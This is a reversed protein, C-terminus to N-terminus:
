QSPGQGCFPYHCPLGWEPGGIRQGQKLLSSGSRDIVSCFGPQRKCQVADIKCRLADFGEPSPRYGAQSGLLSRFLFLLRCTESPLPSIARPPPPLPSPPSAPLTSIFHFPTPSPDLSGQEVSLILPLFPSELFIRSQSRWGLAMQHRAEEPAQETEAAEPFGQGEPGRM